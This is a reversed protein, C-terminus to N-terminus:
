RVDRRRAVSGKSADGATGSGPLQVRLVRYGRASAYRDCRWGREQLWRQLSDSGLDRAVVLWARGGPALRPLWATLLDHLAAKGIRIPPNSWIEHFQLDGPVHDPLAARVREAVGLARANESTLAVARPNVDVAWVTARPERLALVCAIAGYGCGLDLLAGPAPAPAARLLVATGPDLRHASFVGAAGALTLERGDVAFRVTTRVDPAAPDPSFYHDGTV